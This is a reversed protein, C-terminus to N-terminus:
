RYDFSIIRGEGSALGYVLKGAPQVLWAFLRETWGTAVVEPDQAPQDLVQQPGDVAVVVFVATGPHVGAHQRREVNDVNVLQALPEAAADRGPREVLPPM